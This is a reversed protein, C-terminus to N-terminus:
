KMNQEYYNGLLERLKQKARFLLSEVSPISLNMVEALEAYNLNELKNLTFATRQNLPLKRIADFLIASMEKHELSIGPHYFPANNSVHFQDERGFLSLIIGSRKSRSRSRILELSKTMAIRYIWTSLKSQGKFNHISQFVETFVEQTIDEADERNQLLGLATNYARDSYQSLLEGYASQDGTKLRQIFNEESLTRRKITLHQENPNRAPHKTILGFAIISNLDRPIFTIFLTRGIGTLVRSLSLYDM